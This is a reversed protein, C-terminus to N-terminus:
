EKKLLLNFLEEWTSAFPHEVVNKNVTEFILKNEMFESMLNSLQIPNDPNFFRVKNYDGITEHAYELDAL